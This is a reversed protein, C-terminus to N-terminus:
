TAGKQGACVVRETLATATRPRKGEGRGSDVIEFLACHRGAVVRFLAEQERGPTISDNNKDRAVEPHMGVTVAQCGQTLCAVRSKHGM